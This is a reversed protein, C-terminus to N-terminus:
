HPSQETSPPKAAPGSKSGPAGPIKASDQERIGQGPAQSSAAGAGTTARNQAPPGNKNGPQGSIGAGSNQGSPVTVGSPATQSMAPPVLAILAVMAAALRPM